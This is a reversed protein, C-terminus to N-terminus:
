PTAGGHSSDTRSATVGGTLQSDIRTFTVSEDAASYLTFTGSSPSCTLRPSSASTLTVPASGDASSYTSFTGGYVLAKSVSDVASLLVWCVLNSGGVTMAGLVNYNVLYNGAPLGSFTYTKNSSAIGGTPLAFRYTTTQYASAPQGNLATANVATDATSAHAVSLGPGAKKVVKAAIRKVAGKTLGSASATGVSGLAFALTVALLIAILPRRPNTRTTV